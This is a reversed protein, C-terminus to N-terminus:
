PIIAYKLATWYFEPTGIDIRKENKSLEVAYVNCKEDILQQIADTLQIENNADPPIKSIVQYIKAKFIYIAVTAINSLPIPPKEIIKEV